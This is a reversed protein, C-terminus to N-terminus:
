MYRALAPNVSRMLKIHKGTPTEPIFGRLRESDFHRAFARPYHQKVALLFAELALRARENPELVITEALPTLALAVREADPVVPSAAGALPLGASILLPWDVEAPEISLRMGFVGLIRELVKESPNATGREIAQITALSVEALAALRGQSLGASRRIARIERSLM